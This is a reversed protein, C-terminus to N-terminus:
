KLHTVWEDAGNTQSTQIHDGAVEDVSENEEEDQFLFFFLLYLWKWVNVRVSNWM